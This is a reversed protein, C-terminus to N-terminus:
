NQQNEGSSLLKMLHMPSVEHHIKWPTETGQGDKDFTLSDNLMSSGKQSIKNIEEMLDRPKM